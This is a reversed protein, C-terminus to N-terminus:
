TESGLFCMVKGKQVTQAGQVCSSFCGHMRKSELATGSSDGERGGEKGEEKRREALDNGRAM